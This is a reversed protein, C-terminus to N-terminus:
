ATRPVPAWANWATLATEPVSPHIKVSPCGWAAPGTVFAAGLVDKKGAASKSCAGRPYLRLFLGWRASIGASSGSSLCPAQRSRSSSCSGSPPFLPLWSLPIGAPSFGSPGGLASAPLSRSGSSGYVWCLFHWSGTNLLICRKIPGPLSKCNRDSSKPLIKGGIWYFADQMTGFSCLYGCFFRGWIATLPLVAALLFINGAQAAFTFTGQVLSGIIGGIAAFTSIFLGPLLFFAAAQILRRTMQTWRIHKTKM